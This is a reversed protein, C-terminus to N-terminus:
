VAEKCAKLFWFRLGQDAREPHLGNELIFAAVMDDHNAGMRAVAGRWERMGGRVWSPHYRARRATMADNYADEGVLEKLLGLAYGLDAVTNALEQRTADM